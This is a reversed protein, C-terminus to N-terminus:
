LKKIEEELTPMPRGITKEILAVDLRLDHARPARHPLESSSGVRATETPLGKARAIALGFAAKSLGERCGVNLVGRANKEVLEPLLDALTAMLLPSFLIDGFLVVPAKAALAKSLYDSLSERGPRRSPGFFNTRLVLASEFALAAQEGALKSRGYVNVPGTDGEGHPGPVDPYVQDTSIFVLRASAPMHAALNAATDRNAAFAAEPDRECADVDTLGAAHVVVDPKVERLLTRTAVPDILDCPRDGGSRSTTTVPGDRRCVEVLYNSLLGTAGTILWRRTL